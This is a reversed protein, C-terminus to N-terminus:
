FGHFEVVLGPFSLQTLVMASGSHAFLRMNRIPLPRSGLAKGLKLTTAELTYAWFSPSAWPLLGEWAFLVFGRKNWYWSTQMCDPLHTKWNIFPEEMRLPAKLNPRFFFFLFFVFFFCKIPLKYLGEEQKCAAVCEPTSQM